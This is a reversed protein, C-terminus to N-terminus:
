AARRDVVLEYAHRMAAAVADWAFAQRAWERARKRMASVDANQLVRLIGDAIAAPEPAVSYGCGVTDIATWGSANTVVVPVGDSLAEAISMGFSESDSCHVLARSMAHLAAIQERDLAGLWRTASSVPAFLPEVRERYGYEDPGAILLRASPRAQHVMAFAKALLDLRKIPHLRGVCIV